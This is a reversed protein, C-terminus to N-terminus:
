GLSWCSKWHLFLSGKWSLQSQVVGLFCETTEHPTFRDNLYCHVAHWVAGFREDKHHHGSGFFISQSWPDSCVLLHPSRRLVLSWLDTQCFVPFEYSQWVELCFWLYQGARLPKSGSINWTRRQALCLRRFHVKFDSVASTLLGCPYRM